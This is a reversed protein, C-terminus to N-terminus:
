GMKARTQQLFITYHVIGYMEEESGIIRVYGASESRSTGQLSDDLSWLPMSSPLRRGESRRLM